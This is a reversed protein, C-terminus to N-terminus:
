NLLRKVKSLLKEKEIPKHITDRAGMEWTMNLYHTDVSIMLVPINPHSKELLTLLEFGEVEPMVIDSIILDIQESNQNLFKYARSGDNFPHIVYGADTLIHSLQLIITADDDDVVLIHKSGGM